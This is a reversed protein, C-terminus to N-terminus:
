ACKPILRMNEQQNQLLHIRKFLVEINLPQAQPYKWFEVYIMISLNQRETYVLSLHSSAMRDVSFINVVLSPVNCYHGWHCLQCHVWGHSVYTSEFPHHALM